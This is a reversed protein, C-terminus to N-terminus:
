GYLALIRPAWGDLDAADGASAPARD